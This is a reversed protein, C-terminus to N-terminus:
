QLHADHGIMITCRSVIVIHVIANSSYMIRCLNRLPEFALTLFHMLYIEANSVAIYYLTLEQAYINVTISFATIPLSGMKSMNM